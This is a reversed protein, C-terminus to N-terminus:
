IIAYENEQKNIIEQRIEHRVRMLLLGLKNQKSKTKCKECSCSGWYNDHWWNGEELYAEGTNLLSKRLGPDSFKQILCGYMTEDKTSEWNKKMKISQGRGRAQKPTEAMIVYNYQEENDAKAAQFRHEVSLGDPHIYYNSLFRYEGRFDNIVKM